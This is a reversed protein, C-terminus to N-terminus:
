GGSEEGGQGGVTREGAAGRRDLAQEAGQPAGDQKPGVGVELRQPQEVAEGQGQAGAIPDARRAERHAPGGKAVVGALLLVEVAQVRLPQEGARAEEVVPDRRRAVAAVGAGQRKVEVLADLQPPLQGALGPHPVVAGGMRKRTAQALSCRPRVKRTRWRSRRPSSGLKQCCVSSGTRLGISPTIAVRVWHRPISGRRTRVSSPRWRRRCAFAVASESAREKLRARPSSAM